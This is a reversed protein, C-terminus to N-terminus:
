ALCNKAREWRLTSTVPGTSPSSAAWTMSFNRLVQFLGLYAPAGAKPGSRRGPKGAEIWFATIQAQPRPMGRSRACLCAGPGPAAEHTKAKPFAKEGLFYLPGPFLRPLKPRRAPPGPRLHRPFRPDPEPLHCPVPGALPGQRRGAEDVDCPLRGSLLLYVNTRPQRDEAAM